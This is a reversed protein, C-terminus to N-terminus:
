PHARTLVELREQWDDDLWGRRDLFYELAWVYGNQVAYEVLADPTGDAGCEEFMGLAMDAGMFDDDSPGWVPRAWRHATIRDILGEDWFDQWRREDNGDTWDSWWASVVPRCGEELPKDKAYHGIALDEYGYADPSDASATVVFRNYGPVFTVFYKEPWSFGPGSDAWNIEFLYRPLLSIGQKHRKNYDRALQIEGAKYSVGWQPLRSQISNLVLRAVANHVAFDSVNGWLDRRLRVTGSDDNQTQLEKDDFIDINKVSDPPSVDLYDALIAHEAPHFLDAAPTSQKRKTNM